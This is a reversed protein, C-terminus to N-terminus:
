FYRYKKQECYNPDGQYKLLASLIEVPPDALTYKAIKTLVIISDNLPNEQISLGNELFIDIILDYRSIIIM